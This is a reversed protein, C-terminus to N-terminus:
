GYLVGEKQIQQIIPMRSNKFKSWDFVHTDFFLNHEIEFDIKDFINGEFRWDIERDFVLALDIDSYENAEGRAYSGFLYLGKFDPYKSKLEAIIEPIIKNVKDKNM